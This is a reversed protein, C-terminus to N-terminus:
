ESKGQEASARWIQRRFEGPSIGVVRKFCRSFYYEDCFGLAEAVKRNSAAPHSLLDCCRNIRLRALHKAPSVGFVRAFRKRFAEYGMGLRAALTDLDPAQGLQKEMLKEMLGSVEEAWCRTTDHRRQYAKRVALMEALLQQLRSIEECCSGADWPVRLGPVAEMKRVWPAVAGLPILPPQEPLWGAKQWARPIDGSFVLFIEDWCGGPHPGYSHRVGPFLFFVDGAGVSLRPTRADEFWGRGQTVLVMGFYDFTRPTRIRTKHMAGSIVVHGPQSWRAPLPFFHRTKMSRMHWFVCIKGIWENM